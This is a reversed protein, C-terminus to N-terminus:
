ACRLRALNLEESTRSARDLVRSALDRFRLAADWFNLEAAECSPGRLNAITENLVDVSRQAECLQCRAELVPANRENM